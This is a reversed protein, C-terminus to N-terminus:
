EQEQQRSSRREEQENPTATRRSVLGVDSLDDSANNVKDEPSYRPGAIEQVVLEICSPILSDELPFVKDMYDCNGEEQDCALKAAEVPDSFVANVKVEDLFAFQSNNSTLYLHKDSSLAAYIINKLWKNYGVYPMREPAIFTVNSFLMDSVPTVSAIGGSLIDPLKDVSRLWLGDCGSPLLDTQELEVCLQQTNQTSPAVFTKNRTMRYKREILAARIKSALFLIHGETYFSDDGSEKLLDLTM